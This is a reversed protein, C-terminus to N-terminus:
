SMCLNFDPIFGFLCVIRLHFLCSICLPFCIWPLFCFPLVGFLPLWHSCLFCTLLCLSVVLQRDLHLACLSLYKLFTLNVLCLHSQDTPCLCDFIRHKRGTHFYCLSSTYLLFHYFLLLSIYFQLSGCQFRIFRCLHVKAFTSFTLGEATCGTTYLICCSSSFPLFIYLNNM